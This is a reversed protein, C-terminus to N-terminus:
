TALVHRRPISSCLCAGANTAFIHVACLQLRTAAIIRVRIVHSQACYLPQSTNKALPAIDCIQLLCQTLLLSPSSVHIDGYDTILEVAVITSSHRGLRLVLSHVDYSGLLEVERFLIRSNNFFPSLKGGPDKRTTQRPM